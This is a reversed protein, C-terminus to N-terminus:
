TSARDLRRHPGLRAVQAPVAAALRSTRRQCLAACSAVSAPPSADLASGPCRCTACAGSRERRGFAKYGATELSDAFYAVRRDPLCFRGSLAGPLPVRVAGIARNGPRSRVPQIRFLHRASTLRYPALENFAEFNM